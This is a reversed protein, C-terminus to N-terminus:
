MDEFLPAEHLAVAKAGVAGTSPRAILGPLACVNKAAVSPAPTYVLVSEPAVQVEIPGACAFTCPPITTSGAFADCMQIPVAFPTCTVLSPPWVQAATPL